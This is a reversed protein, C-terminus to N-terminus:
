TQSDVELAALVCVRVCGFPASVMRLNRFDEQKAAYGLTVRGVNHVYTPFVSLDRHAGPCLFLWGRFAQM